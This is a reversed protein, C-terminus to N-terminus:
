KRLQIDIASSGAKIFYKMDVQGFVNISDHGTLYSNQIIFDADAFLINEIFKNSTVLASDGLIKQMKHVHPNNKIQQFPNIIWLYDRARSIAVNYVYEKSLLSNKHGTYYHNNPNIVFIIIDCQDGQFGHVTDCKIQLNNSIGAAVILKNMLLAQAKYPSIIGISFNSNENNCDDLFKVIESALIGAYVHYPSYLLKRPQLISTDNDILFNILSVPNKLTDIFSGPLVKRPEKSLDRGHKLLNEYSFESYLKGISDISRYQTNLNEIVDNVRKSKEQEDKDFSYIDLMKYISEDELNLNELNKDTTDVIAPIQKPDGAVYYKTDPNVSKLSLLAFVIYPLSLMSSEDFIVLDWSAEPEFLKFHAGHEKSIQYYPFRHITSIIVNAGDFVSENLSAQYIEDDLAELEPDTASGIRVVSLEANDLIIKKALVDGAKNTPVLVLAKLIPNEAYEQKLITCLKTTKGTGPPGYIFHLSQLADQIAEWPTIINENTFANYLRQILDLVPSFNIKISVVQDFNSTLKFEIGKPIYTLLDQGKKSVGEVLINVTLGSRFVLNISFDEFAEINLPIMSNAGKLIFYKDSIKGNVSYSEISQFSISKQATTDAVDEFTLLYSIYSEFWDYSYRESSKIDEVIENRQEDKSREKLSERLLKTDEDDFDDKGSATLTNYFAALMKNRDTILEDLLDALETLEADVLSTQLTELSIDSRYFLKKNDEEEDDLFFDAFSVTGLFIEDDDKIAHAEHNLEPIRFLQIEHKKNWSKYFPEDHEIFDEPEIFDYRIDLQEYDEVVFDNYEDNEVIIQFSNFLKVKVEADANEILIYYDGSDLYYPLKEQEDGVQIYEQSYWVPLRIKVDEEANILSFIIENIQHHKPSNLKFTPTNESQEYFGDALGFLTNSLFINPINNILVPVSTHAESDMLWRRLRAIDSGSTQVGLARLFATKDHENKTVWETMSSELKEDQLCYDSYILRGPNFSFVEEWSEYDMNIRVEQPTLHWRGFLYKLKKLDDTESSLVNVNCGRQFLFFPILYETPQNESDSNYDGYFFVEKEGLNLLTGLESYEKALVYQKNYFEITSIEPMVWNDELKQWTDSADLVKYNILSDREFHPDLLVLLLQHTNILKGETLNQEFHNILDDTVDGSEIKFISKAEKQTLLQRDTAEEAFTLIKRIAGGDELGLILTRSLKIKSTKHHIIVDDNASDISNLPFQSNEDRLIIKNQLQQKEIKEGSLLRKVFGLIVPNSNEEKWNLDLPLESLVDFLRALTEEDEQLLAEILETTQVQNEEDFNEILYEALAMGKLPVMKSYQNLSEPLSQLDDELYKEIYKKISRNETFYNVGDNKIFHYIGFEDQFVHYESFLDINCASCFNLFHTAENSNFLYQESKLAQNVSDIRFPCDNHVSLFYFDPIQLDLKKNIVNQLQSYKPAETKMLNENYFPSEVEDFNDRFFIGGAGTLQLEEESSYECEKYYEKIQEIILKRDGLETQIIRDALTKWFKYIINEYILSNDRLLYRDIHPHKEDEDILYPTLWSMETSRLINRIKVCDGQRNKFLKLEGLRDGRRGEEIMNRFVRFVNLKEQPSLKNVNSNSVIEILKAQSRLQSDPSLYPGYNSFFQYDDLDIKSTKIGMRSLESQIDILKNHLIILGEDQKEVLENDNLLTDNSFEFLKLDKLNQKFNESRVKEQNYFNLENLITKIRNRDENIWTNVYGSINKIQLLQFIDFVMPDLKEIAKYRIIDPAEAGWYFWNIHHVGFAEMPLDIATTKIRPKSSSLTFGKSDNEKVPILKRLVRSIEKIFPEKVWHREYNTSESSTLLAAYLHLFKNKHEPEDSNYLKLLEDEIRKAITRLLRENIGDEGTTGKHLFTRSSAKYFANSHLVFNFNHVEESLPFYLYFNPAGKFYDKMKDFDRFGFLIEIDSERALKAQQEKTLKSEDKVGFRIYIYENKNDLKKIQFYLYNLSPKKIPAERNLQVTQLTHKKRIHDEATEQLIALSFRVGESLNNDALDNEKGAGLKIFFLAGHPYLEENIYERYKSVWRCLAEYESNNFVPSSVKRGDSLRIDETLIGNNPLAPFCTILIKFLWANEDVIKYKGKETEEVKIPQPEPQSGTALEGLEGNQWSFLIPGSPNNASLLEELGNEKGVLRHALKFGIGFKGINQSDATKTSSGVNLISRISDFNFMDGNNAILLYNNGDVEDKGWAMTFHSAGADVANQLFEYVAQGDKAMDLFSSLFNGIGEDADGYGEKDGHYLAFWGYKRTEENDHFNGIFHEDVQSADVPRMSKYFERYQRINKIKM